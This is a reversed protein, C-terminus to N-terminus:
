SRDGQPPDERRSIFGRLRRPVRIAHAASVLRSGLKWSTSEEVATLRERLGAADAEVARRARQEEQLGESLREAESSLRKKEASFRKAEEANERELGKAATQLQAAERVRLLLLDPAEVAERGSLVDLAATVSAAAQAALTSAHVSDHEQGLAATVASALAGPEVGFPFDADWTQSYVDVKPTEVSIRKTGYACAIIRGHLSSGIWLAATAIERVRDEVSRAASLAIDWDPRRERVGAILDGYLAVSDHAPASGVVFLRIPHGSLEECAAVGDIWSELGHTRILGESLQLLVAEGRPGDVPIAEAITHILDPALRHPIGLGELLDASKKDRVSIYAAERLAATAVAARWPPLGGIGSVGVSNLVLRANRNRPFVSPRPVYPSEMRANMVGDLLADQATADLATFRRWEPPDVSTRYVYERRTSGVEGGVTWIGGYAGETLLAGTSSIQRDLLDTMDAAIPATFAVDVLGRAFHESVVLFLLDGLNDREYAGCAVVAPLSSPSSM